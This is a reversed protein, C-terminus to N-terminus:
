RNVCKTPNSQALTINWPLIGYYEGIFQYCGVPAISPYETSIQGQKLQLENVTVQNFIFKISLCNNIM